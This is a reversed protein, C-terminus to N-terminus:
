SRWIHLSDGPPFSLGLSLKRTKVATLIQVAIINLNAWAESQNLFMQIINTGWYKNMLIQCSIQCSLSSLSTLCGNDMLIEIAGAEEGKCHAAASIGRIWINEVNKCGKSLSKNPCFFFAQMVLLETFQVPSPTQNELFGLFISKSFVKKPCSGKWSIWHCQGNLPVFSSNLPGPLGGALLCSM